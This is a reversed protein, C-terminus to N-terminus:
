AKSPASLSLCIKELYHCGEVMGGGHKNECPNSQRCPRRRFLHILEIRGDKARFSPCGGVPYILVIHLCM